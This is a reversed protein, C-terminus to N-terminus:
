IEGHRLIYKLDTILGTDSPDKRHLIGLYISAFDLTYMVSLIRSLDSRFISHIETVSGGANKVVDETFEIRKRMDESEGKDRIMIVALRDTLDRPAEWGMIGNHNMEPLIESFSHTKSNENFQAKARLAVGEFKGSGYVLPIKGRLKVAIRKSTNEGTKVDPTLEDRIEKLNKIARELDAEERIFRIKKLVVIMPFLLYAIAARPRMGGPIKIFPIKEERCEKELKGGSTIGIIKCKRRVAQRFAAFTEETNGSYSVVFVLSDAGVYGPLDSSRFVRIDHDMLWTRLIDGSIASGGMGCVCVSLPKKLKLGKSFEEGIRIAEECQEPFNRAVGLMNRRDVEMMGVIDDLIM